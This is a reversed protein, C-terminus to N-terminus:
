GLQRVLPRLALDNALKFGMKEPGIVARAIALEAALRATDKHAM